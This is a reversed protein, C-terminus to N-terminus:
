TNRHDASRNIKIKMDSIMSMLMLKWQNTCLGDKETM